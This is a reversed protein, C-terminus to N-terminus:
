QKKKRRQAAHEEAMRRDYADKMYPREAWLSDLRDDEPVALLAALFDRLPQLSEHSYVSNGDQLTQDTPFNIDALVGELHSDWVNYDDLVIHGPGFESGPNDRVFADIRSAVFYPAGPLDFLKVNAGGISKSQKLYALLGEFLDMIGQSCLFIKLARPTEGPKPMPETITIEHSRVEPRSLDFLLREGNHLCTQPEALLVTKIEIPM